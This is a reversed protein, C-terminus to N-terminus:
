QACAAGRSAPPPRFQVRSVGLANHWMVHADAVPQTPADPKAAAHKILTAQSLARQTGRRSRLPRWTPAARHLKSDYKSLREAIAEM